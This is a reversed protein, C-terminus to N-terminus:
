HREEWADKIVGECQADKMWMVEFRFPRDRKYFRVNEDDSCIWLPCHDSLSGSIHHVRVTPFKQSWSATAVGRDLRIWTVVGDFQNNCWTFPSGVFGLDKFGCFDLAGRFEVMQRERRPAGGMKERAKIIENFDGVCLWPLDMQLCLHKLLAWSHERNATVPDGYFGTIRWADDVGPDVVADIYSPSSGQVKLNLGEKWYLALGGGTNNRPVIFLNKLDLKRCLNKLFKDKARTEMLFVFQPSHKKVLDTLELVARPRGLGRCNWSLGNM